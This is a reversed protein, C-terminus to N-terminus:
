RGLWQLALITILRSLVALHFCVVFVENEKAEKVTSEYWKGTKDLADVLDGAKMEPRWEPEKYVRQWDGGEAKKDSLLRVEGTLELEELTKKLQDKQLLNWTKEKSEDEGEIWLRYESYFDKDKAKIDELAKSLTDKSSVLTVFKNELDPEGGEKAPFITIAFPYLEVVEL